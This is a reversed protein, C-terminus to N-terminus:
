SGTKAKEVVKGAEDKHKYKVGHARKHKPHFVNHVKDKPTTLPKTKTKSDETETKKKPEVQANASFAGLAFCCIMISLLKKM